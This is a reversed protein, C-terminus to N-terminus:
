KGNLLSAITFALVAAVLGFMFINYSIRLLRYKRGLIVGQSYVDKILSGYLFERDEMVKQMGFAYDDLSMRYFNGFFLLNVKKNKIDEETFVGSPISPRTALIAFVMASLSVLIIIITPLIFYPYDELRRLLLSIIASLIISNVTILIHAKNDAMDSLRQHNSSTVRFMTEVGKDPRQGKATAAAKEEPRKDRQPDAQKEKAPKEEKAAGLKTKLAELNANKQDNLVLRCYDTHYSHAEMLKITNAAWERKRIKTHSIAEFEERMLKSKRAFDRTGLHFLDADCVINELMSAPSQPMKTAMICKKVADIVEDDVKHLALFDGAMLASRNEHGKAEDSLYGIDHFWAAAIVIFFEKDELQYHNAIQLAANVVDQTHQRDHYCLNETNNKEYFSVVYQEVQELLQQYNM